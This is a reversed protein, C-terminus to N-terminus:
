VYSEGKQFYYGNYCQEGEVLEWLDSTHINFLVCAEGYTYSAIVENDKNLVLVKKNAYSIPIIDIMNCTLDLKTPQNNSIANYMTNYSLNLQYALDSISGVYLQGQSNVCSYIIINGFGTTLVPKDKLPKLSLKRVNIDDNDLYQRIMKFDSETCEPNKLIKIASLRAMKMILANAKMHEGKGM